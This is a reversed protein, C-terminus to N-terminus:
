IRGRQGVATKAAAKAKEVAEADSAAKVTLGDHARLWFGIKVICETM